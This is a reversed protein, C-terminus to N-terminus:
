VSEYIADLRIPIRQISLMNNTNIGSTNLNFKKQPQAGEPPVEKLLDQLVFRHYDYSFVNQAIPNDLPDVHM